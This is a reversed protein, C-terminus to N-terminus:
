TRHDKVVNGEAIAQGVGRGEEGVGGKGETEEQKSAVLRCGSWSGRRVSKPCTETDTPSSTDQDAVGM